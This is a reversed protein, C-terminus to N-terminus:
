WSSTKQLLYVPLLYFVIVISLQLLILFVPHTSSRSQQSALRLDYLDECISM